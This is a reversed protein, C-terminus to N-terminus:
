SQREILSYAGYLASLDKLESQFIKVTEYHIKFTHDKFGKKLHPEMIDFASSIGGGIVICSVDLMNVLNAIGVGLQYASKEFVKQAKKDGKKALGYIESAELELGTLQFMQRKIATGSSYAELCGRNGCGCEAGGPHIVMH